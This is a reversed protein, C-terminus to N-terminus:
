AEVVAPVIKQHRNFSGFVIEGDDVPRTRVAPAYEPPQYVLRPRDLYILEEVFRQPGGAPTSYHDTVFYDMAPIGTTDFYDLMSVQVPAPKRALATVRNEPVHGALDVLIDIRDDVIRQCLEADGMGRTDVWQEAGQRFHRNLDDRRETGDYLVIEFRRRDHHDFIPRFFYGVIEGSLKPSMYGIRITEGVEGRSPRWRPTTAPISQAIRLGLQRHLDFLEEHNDVCFHHLSVLVNSMSSIKSGGHEFIRRYWTIAESERGLDRLTNALNHWVQHLDPKLELAQQFVAVAREKDGTLSLATGLNYLLVPNRPQKKVAQEIWELARPFNKAQMEVGCALLLTSVEVAGAKLLPQLHRRARNFEGRVLATRALERREDASPESAPRSAADAGSHLCCKKGSGCPCPDNRGVQM